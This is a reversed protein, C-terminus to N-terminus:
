LTRSVVQILYHLEEKVENESDVTQLIQAKVKNRFKKRIRHITVKLAGENMGLAHALESQSMTIDDGILWPKLLNFDHIKGQKKYDNELANLAHSLVALGWEHDFWTDDPAQIEGIENSQFDTLSVHEEDGGRKQATQNTKRDAMFHKVAGLLYSRFRGRTQDAHLALSGKLLKCFFDHTVDDVDNKNHLIHAIYAHIPQYYLDCLESLAQSSETSKSQAVIVQTWKTTRFSDSM